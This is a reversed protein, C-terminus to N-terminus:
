VNISTELWRLVMLNVTGSCNVEATKQTHAKGLYIYTRSIYSTICLHCHQIKLDSTITSSPSQLSQQQVQLWPWLNWPWSVQGLGKEDKYCLWFCHSEIDYCASIMPLVYTFWFHFSLPPTHNFNFSYMVNSLPLCSRNLMKCGSGNSIWGGRGVDVDVWLSLVALTITATCTNHCHMHTKKQGTDCAKSLQTFLSSDPLESLKETPSSCQTMGM